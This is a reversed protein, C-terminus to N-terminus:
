KQNSAIFQKIGSESQGHKPTQTDIAESAGFTIGKPARMASDLLKQTATM